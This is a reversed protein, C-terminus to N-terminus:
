CYLRGCRSRCDFRCFGNPCYCWVYHLRREVFHQPSAEFLDWDVIDFGVKIAIGALVAMPISETLHAGGLVVVLLIFARTLGSLATRAGIQINAVTGMTAGAGAIGGFLGSALNGLGQGILEKDSNHQYRTLSDSIVSTLLADISGLMALVLAEFVMLQLESISFTPIQLSPLGTPVEGIRRLEGDSFAMVSILSGLVLAILQPPVFRRWRTPTLFLIAITFIGLGFERPDLDQVLKPSAQIMGIVGNDPSEHGLLPALQLIILIFGIGCMFGSIVTYPLLTIYKGLQLAGFLIQFCGAMMVVTFAMAMGKEPHSATLQSIVTTMVVTMPGTPESILTPTGGFLSAFFGVLIAGWLGASAGAGSSVGFALAMPLAIIAATIGGFIDGKLNRFHIYNTLQM